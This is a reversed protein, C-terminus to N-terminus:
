QLVSEIRRKRMSEFCYGKWGKMKRQVELAKGGFFVRWNIPFLFFISDVDNLFRYSLYYIFLILTVVQSQRHRAPFM